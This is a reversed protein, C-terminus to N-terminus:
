KIIVIFMRYIVFIITFLSILNLPKMLYSDALNLTPASCFIYKLGRIFIKRMHIKRMKKEDAEEREAASGIVTM